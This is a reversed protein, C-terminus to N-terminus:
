EQHFCSESVVGRSLWMSLNLIPLGCTSGVLVAVGTAQSSNGTTRHHVASVEDCCCIAQNLSQGSFHQGM